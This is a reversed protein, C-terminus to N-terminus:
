TCVAHACAGPVARVRCPCNLRLPSFPRLSRVRMRTCYASLPALQNHTRACPCMCKAYQAPTPLPPPKRLAQGPKELVGSWAGAGHARGPGLGVVWVSKLGQVRGLHGGVALKRGRQLPPSWRRSRSRARRARARRRPRAWRCPSAFHCRRWHALPRASHSFPCTLDSCRLAHRDPAPHMDGHTLWDHGQQEAGLLCAGEGAALQRPTRYWRGRAM